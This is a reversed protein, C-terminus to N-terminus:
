EDCRAGEKSTLIVPDLVRITGAFAADVCASLPSPGVGNKEYSRIRFSKLHQTKFSRM